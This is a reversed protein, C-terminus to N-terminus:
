VRVIAATIAAATEALRERVVAHKEATLRMTPLYVALMGVLEGGCRISTGVGAIGDELENVVASHGQRQIRMIEATLDDISTKTSPTRQPHDMTELRQRVEAEPLEALVTRVFGSASHDVTRGAWKSRVGLLQSVEEVEEVIRAAFPGYPIALMATEGVEASLTALIRRCENRIPLIPSTPRSLEHMRAGVVWGGDDQRAVVGLGLLTALIRLVTSRPLQTAQVVDATTVSVGFGSAVASLVEFARQVSQNQGAGALSSKTQMTSM